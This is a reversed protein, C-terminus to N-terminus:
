RQTNHHAQLERRLKQEQGPRSRSRVPEILALEQHERLCRHAHKRESRPTRVIAPNMRSQCTYTNAKRDPEAAASSAGTLCVKTASITPSSSRGLATANFEVENLAAWIIPGATAPKSIAFTPM